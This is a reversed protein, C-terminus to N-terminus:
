FHLVNGNTPKQKIVSVLKAVGGGGWGGRGEDSLLNAINM